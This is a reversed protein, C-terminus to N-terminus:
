NRGDATRAGDEADQQCIGHHVRIPSNQPAEQNRDLHLIEDHDDAGDRKETGELHVIADAFESVQSAQQEAINEHLRRTNLEVQSAWNPPLVVFPLQTAGLLLELNVQSLLPRASAWCHM